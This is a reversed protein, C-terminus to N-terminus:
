KFKKQSPVEDRSLACVNNSDYSVAHSFASKVSQYM